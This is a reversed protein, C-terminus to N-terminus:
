NGSSFAIAQERIPSHFERAPAAGKSYKAIQLAATKM